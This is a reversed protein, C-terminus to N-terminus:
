RPGTPISGVNAAELDLLDASVRLTPTKTMGLPATRSPRPRGRWGLLAPRGPIVRCRTPKGRLIKRNFERRRRRRRRRRRGGRRSHPRRRRLAHLQLQFSSPSQPGSDVGVSPNRGPNRTQILGARCRHHLGARSLPLLSPQVGGAAAAAAARLCPHPHPACAQSRASPLPWVQPAPALAQRWAM